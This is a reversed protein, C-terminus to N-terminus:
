NAQSEPVDGWGAEQAKLTWACVVIGLNINSYKHLFKKLALNHANTRLEAKRQCDRRTVRNNLERKVTWVTHPNWCVMIFNLIHGFLKTCLDM